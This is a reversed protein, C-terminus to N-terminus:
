DLGQANSVLHTHNPAEQTIHEDVLTDTAREENLKDGESNELTGHQSMETGGPRESQEDVEPITKGLHDTLQAKDQANNVLVPTPVLLRGNERLHGFLYCHTCFKPLNEYHAYQLYVQGSPLKVEFAELPKVSTDVEILVRAYSIRKRELTINDFCLPKGLKSAIRSIARTNRCQLPLNHLQVWIPVVSYDVEQFCFDESLSRVFLTRKFIFYPGGALIREKETKNQFKFIVWYSQHPLIDCESKWSDVLNCIAKLGPFRGAFCGLLCHGWLDEVKDIDSEEVDLVNSDPPKIFKCSGDVPAPAKDKFLNAFSVPFSGNKRTSSDNLDKSCTDSFSVPSAEVSEEFSISDSDGESIVTISLVIKRKDKDKAMIWGGPNLVSGLRPTVGILVPCFCILHM